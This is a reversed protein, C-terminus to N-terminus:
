KHGKGEDNGKLGGRGTGKGEGGKNLQLTLCGRNGALFSSVQTKTLGRCVSLCCQSM